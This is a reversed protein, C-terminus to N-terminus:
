WKLPFTANKCTAVRSCLCCLLRLLKLIVFTETFLRVLFSTEVYFISVFLPWAKLGDEMSMEHLLFLHKHICKLVYFALFVIAIKPATPHLILERVIWRLFSFSLINSDLLELIVNIHQLEM